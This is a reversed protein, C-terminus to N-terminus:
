QVLRFCATRASPARPCPSAYSVDKRSPLTGPVINALHDLGLRAFNRQAHRVGGPTALKGPEFDRHEQDSLKAGHYDAGPMGRFSDLAWVKRTPDSVAIFGAMFIAVGGRYTGAEMFDGRVGNRLVEEMLVLLMELQGGNGFGVLAHNRSIAPPKPMDRSAGGYVVLRLLTLYRERSDQAEAHSVVQLLSLLLLTFRRARIGYTSRMITHVRPPDTDASEAAIKTYRLLRADARSDRLIPGLRGRLVRTGVRDRTSYSPGPWLKSQSFRFLHRIWGWLSGGALAM